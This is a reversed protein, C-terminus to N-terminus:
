CVCLSLWSHIFSWISNCKFTGKYHLHCYCCLEVQTLNTDVYHPNKKKNWQLSFLWLLPFIILLHKTQNVPFVSQYFATEKETSGCALYKQHAVLYHVFVRGLVFLFFLFFIYTCGIFLFLLLLLFLSHSFSVSMRHCKISFIIIINSRWQKEAQELNSQKIQNKNFVSKQKCCM